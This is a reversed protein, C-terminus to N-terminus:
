AAPDKGNVWPGALKQYAPPHLTSGTDGASWGFVQNPKGRARSASPGPPVRRLSRAATRDWFLEQHGAQLSLEAM